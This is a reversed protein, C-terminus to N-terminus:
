SYERAASYLGRTMTRSGDVEMVVGVFINKDANATGLFGLVGSRLADWAAHVAVSVGGATNTIECWFVDGPDCDTPPNFTFSSPASVTRRWGDALSPTITAGHALAVAANADKLDKPTVGKTKTLGARIEAPTAALLGVAWRPVVIWDALPGTGAFDGAAVTVRMTGAPMNALSVVGWQLTEADGTAILAVEMGDEFAAVSPSDLGTVDKAGADVTLNTSVRRMLGVAQLITFEAAEAAAQAAVAATGAAEAAQANAYVNASLAIMQVRYTPWAAYWASVNAVFDDPADNNRDPATPLVDVTPPSIVPM